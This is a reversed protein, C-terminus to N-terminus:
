AERCADTCLRDVAVAGGHGTMAAGEEVCPPVGEGEAIKDARSTATALIFAASSPVIRLIDRWDWEWGCRLTGDMECGKDVEDLM